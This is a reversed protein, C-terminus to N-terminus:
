KRVVFVLDDYRGKSARLDICESKGQYEDPLANELIRFWSDEQVDEIVLVGGDKLKPLYYELFQIMSILTHPGDDIMIDFDPLSDAVEPSYADVTRFTVRDMGQFEPHLDEIDIGYISGKSFYERWLALSAGERTGIELLTVKKNQYKAFEQEYFGVIYDHINNKDTGGTSSDWHPYEQFIELFTKM